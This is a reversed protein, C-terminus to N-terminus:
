PVLSLFARMFAGFLRASKSNAASSVGPPSSSRPTSPSKSRAPNASRVMVSAAAPPARNMSHANLPTVNSPPRIRRARSVSTHNPWVRNTASSAASDAMVSTQSFPQTRAPMCANPRTRRRTVNRPQLSSETLKRSDVIVSTVNSSQTSRSASKEPPFSVRTRKGPEWSAPRANALTVQESTSKRPAMRPPSSAAPAGAGPM